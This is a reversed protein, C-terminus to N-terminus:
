KRKILMSFVIMISILLSNVPIPNGSKLLSVNNYDADNNEFNNVVRSVNNYDADNDEFNNVQNDEVSHEDNFLKINGIAIKKPIEPITDNSIFRNGFIINDKGSSPKGSLSGDDHSAYVNVNTVVDTKNVHYSIIDRRNVGYGDTSGLYIISDVSPTGNGWIGNQYYDPGNPVVVYEDDQLKLSMNRTEGDKKEYTIVTGDPAKLLFHCLDLRDILNEIKRIMDPNFYNEKAIEAGFSELQNNDSPAENGGIGMYWGNAFIITHTFYGNSNNYCERIAEIGNIMTKKITLNTPYVSDRRFGSVYENSNIQILISTCDSSRLLTDNGLNKNSDISLLVSGMIIFLFIIISIKLIRMKWWVVLKM